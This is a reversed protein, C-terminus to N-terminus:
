KDVSMAQQNSRQSSHVTPPTPFCNWWWKQPLSQIRKSCLFSSVSQPLIKLKLSLLMTPTASHCVLYRITTRCHIRGIPPFVLHYQMIWVGSRAGAEYRSPIEKMWFTHLRSIMNSLQVLRCRHLSASVRTQDEGSTLQIPVPYSNWSHGCQGLM